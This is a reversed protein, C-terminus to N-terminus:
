TTLIWSQFATASIRRSNIARSSAYILNPEANFVIGRADKILSRPLIHDIEGGEALRDGTYPCTERSAKKIRENKNLWRTELKEAESLMKDKVRKNKKLDAVSASFEFKNEEVFISVDVIGNSFDVKSQIDTSARKAIEWAQRDVLRRM